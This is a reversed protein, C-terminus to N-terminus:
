SQVRPGRHQKAASEQQVGEGEDEHLSPAGSCVEVETADYPDSSWAASSSWDSYEDNIWRVEYSRVPALLSLM